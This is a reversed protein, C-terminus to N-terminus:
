KKKAGKKAPNAPAADEPKAAKCAELDKKVAAFAAEDAAARARRAGLEGSMAAQTKVAEAAAATSKELAAKCEKDECATSVFLLGGLVLASVAKLTRAM